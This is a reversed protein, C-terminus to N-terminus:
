QHLIRVCYHMKTRSSCIRWVEQTLPQKILCHRSAAHSDQNSTRSFAELGSIMSSIDTNRTPQTNPVNVTHPHSKPTTRAPISNGIVSVPCLLEIIPNTQM